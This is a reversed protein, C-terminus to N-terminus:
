IQRRKLNYPRVPAAPKCTRYQNIHFAIAHLIQDRKQIIAPQHYLAERFVIHDHVWRPQRESLGYWLSPVVQTQRISCVRPVTIHERHHTIYRREQPNFPPILLVKDVMVPTNHILIIFPVPEMIDHIQCRLESLRLVGELLLPLITVPVVVRLLLDALLRVPERCQSGFVQQVHHAHRTHGVM